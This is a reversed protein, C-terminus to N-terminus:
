GNPVLRPRLAGWVKPRGLGLAGWVWVGVARQGQPLPTIVLTRVQGTEDGISGLIKRAMKGFGTLNSLEDLDLKGAVTHLLPQLWIHHLSYGYTICATVM